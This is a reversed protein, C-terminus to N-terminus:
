DAETRVTDSSIAPQVAQNVIARVMAIGEESGEEISAGLNPASM